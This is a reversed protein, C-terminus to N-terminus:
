AFPIHSLHVNDYLHARYWSKGLMSLKGVRDLLLLIQGRQAVDVYTSPIFLLFLTMFQRVMPWLGVLFAMVIAMFYGGSDWTLEVITMLTYYVSFSYTEANSTYLDFTITAATSSIGLLFLVITGILAAIVSIKRLNSISECFFIPQSLRNTMQDCDKSKEQEEYIAIVQSPALSYLWKRQRERIRYQLFARASVWACILTGILVILCIMFGKKEKPTEVAQSRLITEQLTFGLSELLSAKEVSANPDYEPSNECTKHSQAILKDFFNRLLHSRREITNLLESVINRTEDKEALQNYGMHLTLGDAFVNRIVNSVVEAVTETTGDSCTQCQVDLKVGKLQMDFFSLDFPPVGTETRGNEQIGSSELLSALCNGKQLDGVRYFLFPDERVNLLLDVLMSLSKTEFSVAFDNSIEKDITLEIITSITLSPDKDMGFQIRNKLGSSENLDPHLIVMPSLWYNLNDITLNKIAVNIPITSNGVAFISEYTFVPRRGAFTFTGLIGSQMTTAPAKDNLFPRDTTPNAKLLQSDIHDKIEFARSGYPSNGTAGAAAAQDPPLLLDRFDLHEANTGINSPFDCTANDAGEYQPRSQLVANNVLHGIVGPLKDSYKVMVLDILGSLLKQPLPELDTVAPARYDLKDFRLNAVSAKKIAGLLCTLIDPSSLLVGVQLDELFAALLEVRLDITAFVNSLYLDVQFSDEILTSDVITGDVVVTENTHLVADLTIHLEQLVVSTQLTTPGTPIIDNFKVVSDLGIVSGGSLEVSDLGWDGLMSSKLDFSYALNEMEYANSNNHFLQRAFSNAVLTGDDSTSNLYYSSLMWALQTVIEISSEYKDLRVLPSDLTLQPYSPTWEQANAAALRAFMASLDKVNNGLINPIEAEFQECIITGLANEIGTMWSERMSDVFAGFLGTVGTIDMDELRVTAVCEDVQLVDGMLRFQSSVDTNNTALYAQADAQIDNWTLSLDMRCVLGVEKLEASIMVNEDNGDQSNLGVDGVTLNHCIIDKMSATVDDADLTYEPLTIMGNSFEFSSVRGWLVLLCLTQLQILFM